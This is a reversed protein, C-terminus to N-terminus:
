AHIKMVMFIFKSSEKYSCFFTKMLESHIKMFCKNLPNWHPLFSIVINMARFLSDHTKWWFKTPKKILSPLSLLVRIDSAFYHWSGHSYITVCPCFQLKVIIWLYFTFLCFDPTLINRMQLQLPILLLASAFHCLTTSPITHPSLVVAQIMTPKKTCAILQRFTCEM